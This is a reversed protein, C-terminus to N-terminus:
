PTRKKGRERKGKKLCPEGSSQLPLNYPFRGDGGEGKEKKGKEGKCFNVYERDPLTLFFGFPWVKGEEGGGRGERGWKLTLACNSANPLITAWSRRGGV